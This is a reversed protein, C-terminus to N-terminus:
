VSGVRTNQETFRAPLTMEMGNVLVMVLHGKDNTHKKLHHIGHTYSFTGQDTHFTNSPEKESFQLKRALVQQVPTQSPKLKALDVVREVARWKGESLRKVYVLACAAYSNMTGTEPIM